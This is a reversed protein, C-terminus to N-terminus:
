VRFCRPEGHRRGFGLRATGRLGIEEVVWQVFRERQVPWADECGLDGARRRSRLAADTAPTISDVMTRPFRAEDRSGAPSLPTAVRPSPSCQATAADRRQGLSQRLLADLYPPLGRERRLQLGRVLWGILSRPAEPNRLDHAIDPHDVDLEGVGDLCYGKETVTVTVLSSDPDCLRRSVAAPDAAAVLVERIAGIVRLTPAADLEM